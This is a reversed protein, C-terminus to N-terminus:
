LQDHDEAGSTGPHVQISRLYTAFAENFSPDRDFVCEDIKIGFEVHV